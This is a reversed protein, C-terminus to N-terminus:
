RFKTGGGKPIMVMIHWACSAALEGGSFAAQIISVVKEWNGPDPDEERMATCLWMRLHEARMGSPVRACHLQLQLVAESIYEEWPINEDM